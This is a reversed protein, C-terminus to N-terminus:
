EFAARVKRAAACASSGRRLMWSKSTSSLMALVLSSPRSYSFTPRGLNMTTGTTTMPWWTTMPKM